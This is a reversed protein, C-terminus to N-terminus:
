RSGPLQLKAVNWMLPIVGPYTNWALHRDRLAGAYAITSSEDDDMRISLEDLGLVLKRALLMERASFNRENHATPNRLKTAIWRLPNIIRPDSLLPILDAARPTIRAGWRHRVMSGVACLRAYRGLTLPTRITDDIDITLSARVGERIEDLKCALRIEDFTSDFSDRIRAELAGLLSSIPLKFDPETTVWTNM